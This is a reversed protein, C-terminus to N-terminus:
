RRQTQNYRIFEDHTKLLSGLFPTGAELKKNIDDPSLLLAQVWDLLESTSIQKGSGRNISDRLAIFREVIEEVIEKVEQDKAQRTVLEPLEGFHAKIIKILTNKNPTKIYHFFCRRLFAEPLNRENNSTILIIPEALKQDKAPIEQSTEEIFFRKEDLELLLDNPFDIDAKDIEDILVVTPIPNQFAKGLAGIKIYKKQTPNKLQKLEDPNLQNSGALQADRLRAVADYLYLGDKAKSTSKVYWTEYPWEKLELSNLLEQNNITFEYAIARALKTKGCGPEGMILLPRKLAIALKVSELLEESPLYPELPQGYFYITRDEPSPNVKGTYELNWKLQQQNM